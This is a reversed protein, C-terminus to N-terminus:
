ITKGYRSERRLHQWVNQLLSEGEFPTAKGMSLFSDTDVKAEKNLNWVTLDKGFPIKFRQRPNIALLEIIKDLSIINKRVLYTYM